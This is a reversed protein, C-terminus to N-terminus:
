STRSATTVAPIFRTRGAMIVVATATIAKSGTKEWEAFADGGDIISNYIIDTIDDAWTGIYTQLDAHVSEMAEDYKEKLEIANEIQQRQEVTIQKNTDLFIQAAEVDFEGAENWLDPALDKLSMYEDEEGWFNAWGGYDRVKIQM